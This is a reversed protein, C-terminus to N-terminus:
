LGKIMLDTNFDEMEKDTLDRTFTAFTTMFLNKLKSWSKEEYKEGANLLNMVAMNKSIWLAPNLLIFCDNWGEDLNHVRKKMEHDCPGKCAFYVHQKNDLTYMVYIGAHKTNKLELEKSCADCLLKELKMKM